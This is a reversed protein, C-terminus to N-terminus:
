PRTWIRDPRQLAPTSGSPESVFGKQLTPLLAAFIILSVRIRFLERPNVAAPASGTAVGLGPRGREVWGGTPGKRQPRGLRGHAAGGAGAAHPCAWKLKPDPSVTARGSPRSKRQVSCFWAPFRRYEAASGSTAPLNRIAGPTHYSPGTFDSSPIGVDKAPSFSFAPSTLGDPMPAEARMALKAFRRHSAGETTARM